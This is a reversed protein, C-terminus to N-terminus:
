KHRRYLGAKSTWYVYDDDLALGGYYAGTVGTAIEEPAGACGALPCRVVKNEDLERWYVHRGDVALLRPSPSTGIRRLAATCGAIPCTMVDQRYVWYVAEEFVVADNTGLGLDVEDDACSVPGVPCAHLESRLDSWFVMGAGVGLGPNPAFIPNVERATSATCSAAPCARIYDGASPPRVHWVVNTGDSLVEDIGPQDALVTEPIGNTGEVASAVLRDDEGWFLRHEALAIRPPKATGLKVPADDCGTKPCVFVGSITSAFYVNSADVVLPGLDQIASLREPRCSALCGADLTDADDGPGTAAGRTGGDGAGRDIEIQAARLGDCAGLLAFAIM